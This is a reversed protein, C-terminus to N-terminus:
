AAPAPASGLQTRFEKLEQLAIPDLSEPDDAIMAEGLRVAEDAFLIAQPILHQRQYVQALGYYGDFHEPQALALKKFIKEAQQLQNAQLADLGNNWWDLDDEEEFPRINPFEGRMRRLNEELTTPVSQPRHHRSM